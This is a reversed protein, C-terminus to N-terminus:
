MSGGTGNEVWGLSKVTKFRGALSIPLAHALESGYAAGLPDEWHGECRQRLKLIGTLIWKGFSSVTFYEM